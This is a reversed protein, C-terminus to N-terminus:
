RQNILGISIRNQLNDVIEFKSMSKLVPYALCGLLWPVYSAYRRKALLENRLYCREPGGIEKLFYTNYEYVELNASRYEEIEKDTLALSSITKMFLSYFEVANKNPLLEIIVQIAYRGNNTKYPEGTSLKYDFFNTNESMMNLQKFMNDIAILENKNNLERMKMNLAFTAGALEVNMGKSKAYSVLQGVSVVAEINVVKTQGLDITSLEKYSQINGSSVTAIEDKIIDDNLIDTNASVFTGYAQEIASRLATSTAEEKTTGEGSVVLTVTKEGSNELENNVSHVQFPFLLLLIVFACIWKSKLINKRM